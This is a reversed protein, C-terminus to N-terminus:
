RGIWCKLQVARRSVRPGAVFRHCHRSRDASSPLISFVRFVLGSVSTRLSISEGMDGSLMGSFWTGYRSALPRDLGYVKRLREITEESVQPNERLASLADGGASSLLGFAIASVVLLM